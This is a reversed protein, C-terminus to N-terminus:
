RERFYDHITQALTQSIGEVQMLDSVSAGAVAKATGFNNLLARKRAVGIGAIEDLPNKVMAKKRKARHVGIAFRHAEDRLRQIFFLVGDRPPLSFPTQGRIFFRERGADRDVGKAVGIAIIKDGLKLKDLVEWVIKMQGAGGDILL